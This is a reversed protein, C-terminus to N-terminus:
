SAHDASQCKLYNDRAEQEGRELRRAKRVGAPFPDDVQSALDVATEHATGPHLSRRIQMKGAWSVFAVFHIRYGAFGTESSLRIHATKQRKSCAQVFVAHALAARQRHIVRHARM